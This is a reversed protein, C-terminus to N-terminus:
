LSVSPTGLVAMLSIVKSFSSFCGLIMLHAPFPLPPSPGKFTVDQSQGRGPLSSSTIWLSFFSYITNSNRVWSRLFRM